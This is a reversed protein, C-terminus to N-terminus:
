STQQRFELHQSIQIWISVEYEPHDKTIARDMMDRVISLNNIYVPSLMLSVYSVTDALYEKGMQVRQHYKELIGLVKTLNNPDYVDLKEMKRKVIETVLVRDFYIVGNPVQCMLRGEIYEWISEFTPMDIYTNVSDLIYPINEAWETNHFNSLHSNTEYMNETNNKIVTHHLRLIEVLNDVDEDSYWRVPADEVSRGASFANRRLIKNRLHLMAHIFQGNFRKSFGNCSVPEMRHSPYESLKSVKQVGKQIGM